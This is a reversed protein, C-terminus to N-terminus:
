IKGFNHVNTKPRGDTAAILPLTRKINTQDMKDSTYGM